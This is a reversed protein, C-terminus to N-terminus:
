ASAARKRLLRAFEQAPVPMSFYYGQAEDCGCKRLFEAQSGNEVGEAIVKLGLSHAMVIVAQTIAVDESDHPLDQIFSRDIKLSDIPFRKLYSLSSYGTGFDDISVIVGTAKLKSLLKAAREPNQMVMSETIELELATPDLATQRLMSEVDELLQEHAFQRSSLNVAICHSPLGEQQWSKSQACATRLVWEGIPVILGSEEAIPIFKAPPILGDSPHRWRLLAETGVIRQTNLNVKAQYHLVFEECELARRLGSEMALREVTRVNMQASYFQYNNRGQEKARYMAIDACKLLGQLDESDSPFASIGISASLHFDQGDIFFPKAVADLLKQAVVASKTPLSTAELLVVFEDGGLRGITDSERLCGRLRSAVERLVSDGAGHGLTDNINKFHDLDLFIIALTWGNRRAQAIAHELRQGFMSRNTLGTLDDFHALHHIRDEARRRTMFLGIQNGIAVATRLLAADPPRSARSFFEMVGLTDSRSRVPFAFAGRLGAKQALPARQFGANQGLEDIWVPEGSRWVRMFLGGPLHLPHRFQRNSEAFEAIEAVPVSWTGACVMVQHQQDASWYAGCDCDLAEGIVRIVKSIAESSQDAESLLRAVAHELALRLEARKRETIDVITGILGATRGDSDAFTAKYYIADHVKGDRTTISTEYSKTGPHRWLVQDDADLRQATEPEEPYLDFVTKGLFVQRPVGFYDEWAKNVGLYRGDTGKFFIPNPLVEILEQTRRKEESLKTQSESLDATMRAALRHARQRSGALSYILGSLLLSMVLVASSAIWPLLHDTAGMFEEQPARLRLEWRRQGFDLALSAGLSAGRASRAAEESYLKVPVPKPESDVLGSDFISLDFKLRDEGSLLNQVLDSVVFTANALGVFADRRRAVDVAFADKRYLALRLVVGTAGEAAALSLRGSLTPIGTDRAREILGIRNPDAALDLGLASKNAHLPEVYDIVLYQAREGAPRIAVSGVGRRMLDSDRHLRREFNAKAAAPVLRAYSISRVGPYRGPLDLSHVYDEFAARGLTPDAQFMGQIGYLLDSYSRIRTQATAAVAIAASEFKLRAAGEVISEAFLYTAISLVIGVVLVIWAASRGGSRLLMFRSTPTPTEAKADGAMPHM